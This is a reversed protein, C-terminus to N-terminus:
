ILATVAVAIGKLINAATLIDDVSVGSRGAIAGVGVADTIARDAIPDGTLLKGVPVQRSAATPKLAKYLEIAGAIAGIADDGKTEIWLKAKEFDDPM